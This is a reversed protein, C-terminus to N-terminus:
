EQTDLIKIHGRSSKFEVKRGIINALISPETEAVTVGNERKLKILVQKTYSSEAVLDQTDEFGLNLWSYTIEKQFMLPLQDTYITSKHIWGGGEDKTFLVLYYSPYTDQSINDTFYIEGISIADPSIQDDDPVSIDGSDRSKLTVWISGNDIDIPKEFIDVFRLGSREGVIYDDSSFPKPCPDVKSEVIILKFTIPAQDKAGEVAKLSASLSGFYVGVETVVDLGQDPGACAMDNGENDQLYVSFFPRIGDYSAEKVYLHNVELDQAESLSLEPGEIVVPGAKGSGCGTACATILITLLTYVISKM